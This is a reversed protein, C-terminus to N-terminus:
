FIRAGGRKEREVRKEEQKMNRSDRDSLGQRREKDGSLGCGDSKEGEGLPM